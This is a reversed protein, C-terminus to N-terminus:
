LLDRKSRMPTASQTRRSRTKPKSNTADQDCRTHAKPQARVQDYKIANTNVNQTYTRDTKQDFTLNSKSHCCKLHTKPGMKRANPDGVRINVQWTKQIHKKNECAEATCEVSKETSSHNNREKVFWVLCSVMVCHYLYQKIVCKCRGCVMRKARSSRAEFAKM